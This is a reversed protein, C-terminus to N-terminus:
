SSSLIGRVEPLPGPGPNKTALDRLYTPLWQLEEPLFEDIRLEQGGKLVEAYRLVGDKVSSSLDPEVRATSCPLLLLLFPLCLFLLPLVIRRRMAQATPTM